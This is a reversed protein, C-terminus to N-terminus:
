GRRADLEILYEYDSILTSRKARVYRSPKDCRLIKRVTHRSVGEAQSVVRILKGDTFVHRRIRAWRVPDTYM